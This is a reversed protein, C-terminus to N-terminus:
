RKFSFRSLPSHIGEQLVMHLYPLKSLQEITPPQGHLVSIEARLTDLVDQRQCLIYWISGMFSTMSDKGAALLNIIDYKIDERSRGENLLRYLLVQGSGGTFGESAHDIAEDIFAHVTRLARDLRADGFVFRWCIGSLSFDDIGSVARQAYEFAAAFERGRSGDGDSGFLSPLIETSTGLFLHTSVDLTLAHFIRQLDVTRGDPVLRVLVQLHTEFVELM